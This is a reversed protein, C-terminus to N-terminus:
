RVADRSEHTALDALAPAAAADASLAQSIWHEARRLNEVVEASSNMQIAAIRQM